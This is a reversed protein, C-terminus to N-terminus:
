ADQIVDELDSADTGIPEAFEETTMLPEIEAGQEVMQYAEHVDAELERRSPASRETHTDMDNGVIEYGMAKVDKEYQSRSDYYQGNAPNWTPDMGDVRISPKALDSRSARRKQHVESKAYYEVAPIMKGNKFIWRGKM